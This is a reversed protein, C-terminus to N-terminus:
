LDRLAFLFDITAEREVVCYQKGNIAYSYVVSQKRDVDAYNLLDKILHYALRPISVINEPKSRRRPATVQPFHADLM